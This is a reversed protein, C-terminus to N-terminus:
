NNSSSRFPKKYVTEARFSKVEWGQNKLAYYRKADTVKQKKNNHYEGNVEVVYKKDLFAFDVTMRDIKYQPHPFLRIKNLAKFLRNETVNMGNELKTDWADEKM